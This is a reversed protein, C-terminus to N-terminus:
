APARSQSRARQQLIRRIQTLHQLRTIHTTQRTHSQIPQLYPITPLEAFGSGLERASALSAIAPLLLLTGPQFITADFPQMSFLKFLRWNSQVKKCVTCVFEEQPSKQIHFTSKSAAPRQSPKPKQQDVAELIRFRTELFESFEKMRPLEKRSELKEEWLRQTSM